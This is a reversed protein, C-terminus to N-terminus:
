SEGDDGERMTAEDYHSAVFRLKHAIAAWLVPDDEPQKAVVTLEM